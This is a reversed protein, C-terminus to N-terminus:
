DKYLNIKWVGEVGPTGCRLYLGDSKQKLEPVTLVTTCINRTAEPTLLRYDTVYRQGAFEPPYYAFFHWIISEGATFLIFVISLICPFAVCLLHAKSVGADSTDGTLCSKTM